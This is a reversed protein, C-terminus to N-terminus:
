GRIGLFQKFEEESMIDVKGLDRAKKLKSGANEGVVLIDLKGSVASVVRGGYQIAMEKAEVRTMSQLSGTFLVSKGALPADEAVEIPMDEGKRSMDVGYKEMSKLLEINEPVSFFDFMNKAVVPGIAKIRTYDEMSWNQLDFINEIEAAILSSAKKGVHHISLSTLIRTLSNKKSKEISDRLNEASKDGFGDLTKIKAYDLNYVDSINKLWGQEFFTQVLAKGFGDIDMADRSVHYIIRQLVQAKCNINPCRWAAEDEERVLPTDCVPCLSPFEIHQEEGTRLESFSKVIYPIVDGAREILVQDGIRIDKSQIFDENHLSISSITVGALQTPTIKAVPTITGIKGVQYHVEELRSTAQKAKFKYAIAWRPHHSTSGLQDQYDLQDVKVVMGDIEYGYSDRKEEWEQCFAVVEAIDKCKKIGANPIKFGLKGLLRIREYHSNMQNEDKPQGELYAIQYFFAEIGRKATDKPSKMRLGGAAANRPNAFLVEGAEERQKNIELFRDKPIIAEGRLEVREIGASSFSASLPVTRLTRINDTIDEGVYGDGRTAASALRDRDYVVVISGGDYKPEVTYSLDGAGELLKKVQKDFEMLDDENYSNGLSLMPSLHQITDQISVRDSGVRQTPSLPTLWEPHISEIQEALKFLQDYESDSITPDNDVYYKREHFRLVDLLDDYQESSLTGAQNQALFFSTDDDNTHNMKM